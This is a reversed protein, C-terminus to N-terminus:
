LNMTPMMSNDCDSAGLAFVDDGFSSVREVKANTGLLAADTSM